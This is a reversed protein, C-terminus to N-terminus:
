CCVDVRFVVNCLVQSAQPELLSCSIIIFFETHMGMSGNDVLHLEPALDIYHFGFPLGRPIREYRVNWQVAVVQANPRALFRVCPLLNVVAGDLPPVKEKGLTYLRAVHDSCVHHVTCVEHDDPKAEKRDTARRGM